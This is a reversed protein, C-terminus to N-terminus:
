LNYSIFKRCVNYINLVDNSNYVITKMLIKLSYNEKNNDINDYNHSLQKLIKNKTKNLALTGHSLLQLGALENAKRYIMPIQHLLHNILDPLQNKEEQRLFSELM